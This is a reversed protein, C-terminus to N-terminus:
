EAIQEVFQEQIGVTHQAITAQLCFHMRLCFSMGWMADMVCDKVIEVVSEVWMKGYWLALLLM